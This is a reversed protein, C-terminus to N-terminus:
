ILAIVAEGRLTVGGTETKAELALRVRKEGDAEFKEVVTGSCSVTDHVHTIAVFRVNYARLRDIQAWNTLARGLYAMSLMGHAFVDPIGNKRAFDLDVHVPLHDGSAGCYLALTTRSIPDLSLAPIADGVQVDEYSPTVTMM